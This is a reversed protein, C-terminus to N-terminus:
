RSDSPTSPPPSKEAAGSPAGGTPISEKESPLLIGLEFRFISTGDLKEGQIVVPLGSLLNYIDEPEVDVYNKTLDDQTSGEFEYIWYYGQVLIKPGKADSLIYRDSGQPIRERDIGSLRIEGFCPTGVEDEPENMQEFTVSARFWVRQRPNSWTGALDLYSGEPSRFELTTTACSALGGIAGAGALLALLAGRASRVCRGTRRSRTLTQSAMMSDDEEDSRLWLDDGSRQARELLSSM